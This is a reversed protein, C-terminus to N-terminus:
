RKVCWPGSLMRMRMGLLTMTTMAAGSLPPAASAPPDTTIGPCTDSELHCKDAGGSVCMMVIAASSAKGKVCM